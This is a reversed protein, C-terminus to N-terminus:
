ACCPLRPDSRLCNAPSWALLNSPLPKWDRDGLNLLGTASASSLETVLEGTLHHLVLDKLGAWWRARVVLQPEHESLWVLKTLPSM